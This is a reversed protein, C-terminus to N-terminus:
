DQNAVTSTAGPPTRMIFRFMRDQDGDNRSIVLARRSGDDHVTYTVSVGHHTASAQASESLLGKETRYQYRRDIAVDQVTVRVRLNASLRVVEWTRGAAEHRYRIDSDRFDRAFRTSWEAQGSPFNAVLFDVAESFFAEDLSHFTGDPLRFMPADLRVGEQRLPHSVDGPLDKPTRIGIEVNDWEMYFDQVDKFLPEVWSQVATEDVQAFTRLEIGLTAAMNIAGASFPRSSVAVAHNAGVDTKKTAVQEIWTVDQRDRRKRCEIMVFLPVSGVTGRVSVDVERRRRSLKGTIYEPSKIEVPAAALFRELDQVLLELDRGRRPM